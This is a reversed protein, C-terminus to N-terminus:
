DVVTCNIMKAKGNTLFTYTIRDVTCDIVQLKKTGRGKFFCNNIRANRFEANTYGCDDFVCSNIEGSFSINTLSCSKFATGILLAGQMTNGRFSCGQLTASTLDASNFACKKIDCGKFLTNRFSCECFSDRSVNCGKLLGSSLDANKFSSNLINNGNLQIGKMDSSDFICQKINSGKFKEALNNLGSFDSNEWEAGSFDWAPVSTPSIGDPKASKVQGDEYAVPSATDKLAASTSLVDAAAAENEPMSRDFSTTDEFRASNEEQIASESFYSLSIDLYQALRDLTIIDPLSEGREWKGVAQPSLALHNAVQAQSVDKSKRARTIRKGIEIPTLM